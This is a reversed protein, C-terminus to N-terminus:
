LWSSHVVRASNGPIMTDKSSMSFSPLFFVRARSNTINVTVRQRRKLQEVDRLRTVTM